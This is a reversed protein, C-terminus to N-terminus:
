QPILDYYRANYEPATTDTYQFLGNTDAASQGLDQWTQVNPSAQIDFNEGSSGQAQLLINGNGLRQIAVLSYKITVIETCPDTRPIFYKANKKSV